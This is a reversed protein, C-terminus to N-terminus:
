QYYQLSLIHAPRTNPDLRVYNERGRWTFREGTLLDCVYYSNSERLGLEELPVAVTAEHASFPDLNVVVIIVSSLDEAKKM